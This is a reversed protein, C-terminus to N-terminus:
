SKLEEILKQYYEDNAVKEYMLKDYIDDLADEKKDVEKDFISYLYSGDKLEKMEAKLDDIQKQYDIEETHTQDEGAKEIIEEFLNLEKGDIDGKEWASDISKKMAKATISTGTNCGINVISVELLTSKHIIQVRKGTKKDEKYEVSDWDPLFSISMNNLFGGKVFKLVLSAFPDIKNALEAKGKLKNGEIWMKLIRGIPLERQEHSYLLSRNKMIKKLDMGALKVLDGDYDVQETSCIFEIIGKEEDVSTIKNLETYKIFKTMKDM